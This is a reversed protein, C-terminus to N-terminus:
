IHSTRKAREAQAVGAKEGAVAGEALAADIMAMWVLRTDSGELVGPVERAGIMEKTPERMAEIAAHADTRARSLCSETYTGDEVGKAVEAYTIRDRGFLMRCTIGGGFEGNFQRDFLAAAVREVMTQEPM